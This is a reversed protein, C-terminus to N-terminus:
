PLHPAGASTSLHVARVPRAVLVLLGLSGTNHEGASRLELGFWSTCKEFLASAELLAPGEKEGEWLQHLLEKWQM